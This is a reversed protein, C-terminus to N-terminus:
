GAMAMCMRSSSRLRSTTRQDRLWLLPDRVLYLRSLCSKGQKLGATEKLLAMVTAPAAASSGLMSVHDKNPAWASHQLPFSFATGAWSLVYTGMASGKSPPVYEGPYSAGFIQYIRKFAPGGADTSSNKVLESGKYALRIKKFDMIEIIRLRQEAGDFRLRFGNKPLTVAVPITLPNNRDYHFDIQPFRTKSEKIITLVEHLSAGLDIM